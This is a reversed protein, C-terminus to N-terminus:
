DPLAYALLYAGPNGYIETAGSAAIVIFQKGSPSVCSMPTASAGNPMQHSWLERGTQMDVARIYGDQSGGFFVVGTKTVLTGGTM